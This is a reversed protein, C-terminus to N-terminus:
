RSLLGEIILDVADDESLGRSMLTELQKNDVSGIAAEHTVHARPHSVEVIPIASAKGNDQVIEKCDVHGKANAATAVMKNYIEASANERVAIRSNLVGRAGEGVLYGTERIKIIDDAKGSVRALMELTANEHCTTEYDIDILGVRGRILEFETKFSGDKAVEVKSKPVVKIGGSPSHVHKEFYSYVAGEGIRIKADMLHEVDVANPFVCHALMSIKANKRIEIDLIIRQIGKEPLMGFCMHVPKEIVVGEELMIKADIGDELEKVEVNLGPLLKEGVVKNHHIVLRAVEPDDLVHTNMGTPKYLKETMTQNSTM